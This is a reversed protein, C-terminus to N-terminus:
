IYTRGPNGMLVNGPADWERWPKDNEWLADFGGTFPACTRCTFSFTAMGFTINNDGPLM